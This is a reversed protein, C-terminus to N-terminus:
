AAKEQKLREAIWMKLLSQRSVANRSALRDIDRLVNAALDLNVRQVAHGRRVAQSLDCYALVSEGDDFRRDLEEASINGSTQM